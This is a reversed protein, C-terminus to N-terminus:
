MLIVLVPLPAHHWGATTAESVVKQSAELAFGYLLILLGQVGENLFLM